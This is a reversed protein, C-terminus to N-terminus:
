ATEARMRDYDRATAEWGSRESTDIGAWRARAPEFDLLHYARYLIFGPTVVDGIAEARRVPM